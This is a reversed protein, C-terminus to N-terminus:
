AGGTGTGSIILGTMTFEVEGDHIFPALGPALARELEGARSMDALGLPGAYIGALAAVRPFRATVRYETVQAEPLGADAVVQELEDRTGMSFARRLLASADHGGLDHLADCIAGMAPIADVSGWTCVVVPRGRRVASAMARVAAAPQPVFMLAFDSALADATGDAVPLSEATGQVWEAGPVGRARARALMGTSPDVGVIRPWGRAALHPALVGTGCGVDLVTGGAPPTGLLGAVHAAWEDFFAPVLQTDYADAAADFAPTSSETSM